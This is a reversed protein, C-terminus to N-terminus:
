ERGYVVLEDIFSWAKSGYGPHWDPLTGFSKVNIKIRRIKKGSNVFNFIRNIEEEKQNGYITTKTFYNPSGNEDFFICSVEKPHLIWSNPMYLSSLQISDIEQAYELDLDIEFDKGEWGLWHVRFDNSGHVGNTLLEPDGGSYKPDPKPTLSVKKGFALNGQKKIQLTRKTSNIYADPTLGSENINKVNNSTCIELFEDVIKSMETKLILDNGNKDYFGREGFMNSKGIEIMAYMLPLRAIRVHNLYIPQNSVSKEAEDFWSNYIRINEHSLFSKQHATPHGYIDLIENSKILESETKDLYKRIFPAANSYYGSLFENIVANEDADINWLLKAILYAKLDSFAHGIDVNSQQFQVKAGNENFFKINPKLVHFNPFPTILHAFNVTYDWLFINNTISAWNKIDDLFSASKPDKIIPKSRNLEITCLMIQINDRPITKEPAKRSFQYALTSIKKDPFSDAITNIFRILPGSPANEEKIIPSCRDCSCYFPNDNQSVSWLKKEPQKSMEEKLKRISLQLVEPNSVCLQDRTRLGNVMSFYEPHEEFYKDPPILKHFTHVFYGTPFEEAIENIKLWNRYEKSKSVYVGNIIRTSNDPNICVDIHPLVLKSTKPFVRHSPSYVRCGMNQELLHIVGYVAGRKTGGEIFLNKNKIYIHFGDPDIEKGKKTDLSNSTGSIIISNRLSKKSKEIIPLEVGTISDITNQLIKAAEKEVSLANPLIVIKYNTKGNTVLNIQAPLSIFAMFLSIFGFGIRIKVSRMEKLIKM